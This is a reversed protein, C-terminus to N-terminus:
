WQGYVGSLPTWVEGEGGVLLGGQIWSVAAGRLPGGILLSLHSCPNSVGRGVLIAVRV